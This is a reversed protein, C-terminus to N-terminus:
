GEMSNYVTGKDPLPFREAIPVNVPGGPLNEIAQRIIRGSQVMEEMRVQFRAYCDGETAIPV